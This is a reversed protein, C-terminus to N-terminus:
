VIEKFFFSFYFPVFYVIDSLPDCLNCQLDHAATDVVAYVGKMLSMQIQNFLKMAAFRFCLSLFRLYGTAMKFIMNRLPFVTHRLVILAHPM